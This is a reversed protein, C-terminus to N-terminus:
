TVYRPRLATVPTNKAEDNYQTTMRNAAMKSKPLEFVDAMKSVPLSWTDSTRPMVPDAKKAHTSYWNYM